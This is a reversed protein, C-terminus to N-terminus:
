FHSDSTLKETAKWAAGGGRGVAEIWGAERLELMLDRLGLRDFDPDIVNLQKLQMPGRHKIAKLLKRVYPLRHMAAIRAVRAARTRAHYRETPTAFKPVPLRRRRTETDGTAWLKPTREYTISGDPEQDVTIWGSKRLTDLKSKIQDPDFQPMQTILQSLFIKEESRVWSLAILALSDEFPLGHWEPKEQQLKGDIRKTELRLRERLKKWSKHTNYGAWATRHKPAGGDALSLLWSQDPNTDPSYRRSFSYDLIDLAAETASMEDPIRHAADFASGLELVYLSLISAKQDPSVNPGSYSQELMVQMGSKVLALFQERKETDPASKVRRAM